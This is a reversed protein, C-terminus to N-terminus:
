HDLIAQLVNSMAMEIIDDEIGLKCKKTKVRISSTALKGLVFIMCFDQFFVSVKACHTSM